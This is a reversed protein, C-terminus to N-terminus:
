ANCLQYFEEVSMEASKGETNDVRVTIGTRFNFTNCTVYYTFEAEQGRVAPYIYFPSPLESEFPVSKVEKHKQIFRAVLDDFSEARCPAHTDDDGGENDTM